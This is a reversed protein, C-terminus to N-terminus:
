KKGFGKKYLVKLFDWDIMDCAKEFDLKLVWGRKKKILYEDVLYNAIFIPDLIQRGQVFTAQYQNITM